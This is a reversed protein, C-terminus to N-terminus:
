EAELTTLLAARCIAIPATPAYAEYHEDGVCFDVKVLEPKARSRWLTLQGFDKEVVDWAADISTSYHPVPKAGLRAPWLYARREGEYDPSYGCHTKSAVHTWGMVNVAVEADIERGAPMNLIEDKTM